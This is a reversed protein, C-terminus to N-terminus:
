VSEGQMGEIMPECHVEPEELLRYLRYRKVGNLHDAKAVAVEKKSEYLAKIGFSV